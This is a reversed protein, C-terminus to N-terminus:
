KNISQPKNISPLANWRFIVVVVVASHQVNQMLRLLEQFHNVRQTHIPIISEANKEGRNVNLRNSANQVSNQHQLHIHKNVKIPKHTRHFELPIDYCKSHQWFRWLDHAFGFHDDITRANQQRHQDNNNNRNNYNNINRNVWPM